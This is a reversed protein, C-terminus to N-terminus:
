PSVSSRYPPRIISLKDSNPDPSTSIPHNYTNQKQLAPHISKQGKHRLKNNKSNNIIMINILSM